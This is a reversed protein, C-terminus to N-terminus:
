GFRPCAISTPTTIQQGTEYSVDSLFSLRGSPPCTPPTAWFSRTTKVKYRACRAGKKVACTRRTKVDTLGPVTVRLEAISIQVLNVVTPPLVLRYGFAGDASPDNFVNLTFNPKQQAVIDNDRVVAARQDTVSMIGFGVLAGPESPPTLFLWLFAPILDGFVPRVDVKVTGAGIKAAACTDLVRRQAGTLDEGIAKRTRPLDDLMKKYTLVSTQNALLLTKLAGIDCLRSRKLFAPRFGLGKPFRLISSTIAPPADGTTDFSNSQYVITYRGDPKVDKIQVSYQQVPDATAAPALVAALALALLVLPAIRRM